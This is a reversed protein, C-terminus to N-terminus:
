KGHMDHVFLINPTQGAIICAPVAKWWPLLRVMEQALALCSMMAMAPRTSTMAPQCPQQELLTELLCFLGEPLSYVVAASLIQEHQSTPSATQSQCLSSTCVKGTHSHNCIHLYDTVNFLVHYGEETKLLDAFTLKTSRASNFHHTGAHRESYLAYRGEPANLSPSQM